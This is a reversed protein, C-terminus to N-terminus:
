PFLTKRIIFLGECPDVVGETAREMPCPGDHARNMIGEALTDYECSIKHYNLVELASKSLVSAYLCKIKLYAYLLAAGRGVVKDAASFASFDKGSDILDLLPTVGRRTDTLEEEGCVFACTRTQDAKLLAKARDLDNM